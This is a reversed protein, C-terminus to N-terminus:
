VGEVSRTDHADDVRAPGAGQGGCGQGLQAGNEARQAADQADDEHLRPSADRRAQPANAPREIDLPARERPLQLTKQLHAPPLTTPIHHRPPQPAKEAQLFITLVAKSKLAYPLPM